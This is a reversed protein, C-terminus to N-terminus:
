AFCLPLSWLTSQDEIEYRHRKDRIHRLLPDFPFAGPRALESLRLPPLPFPGFTDTIEAALFKGGFVEGHVMDNRKDSPSLRRLAVDDSCAFFTVIFLLM